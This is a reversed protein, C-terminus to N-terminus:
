SDMKQDVDNLEIRRETVFMESGDVEIGIELGLQLILHSRPYIKEQVPTRVRPSKKRM